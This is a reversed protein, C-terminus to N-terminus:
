APLGGSPPARSHRVFRGGATPAAGAGRPTSWRALAIGASAVALLMAWTLLPREALQRGLRPQPGPDFTRYTGSVWAAPVATAAASPDPRSGAASGPPGALVSLGFLLVLSALAVSVLRRTRDDGV